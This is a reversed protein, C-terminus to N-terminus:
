QQKLRMANKSVDKATNTDSRKAAGLIHEVNLEKGQNQIAEKFENMNSEFNAPDFKKIAEKVPDTQLIKLDLEKGVERQKEIEKIIETASSYLESKEDIGTRKLVDGLSSEDINGGSKNKSSMIYGLMAVMAKTSLMDRNDVRLNSLNSNRSAKREQAKKKFNEYDFKEKENM